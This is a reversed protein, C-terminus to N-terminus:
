SQKRARAMGAAVMPVDDSACMGNLLESIHNLVSTM